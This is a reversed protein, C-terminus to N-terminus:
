NELSEGLSLKLQAAAVTVDYKSMIVEARARQANAQQMLLNSMNILNNKYMEQSQLLVEDALDNAKIKEKLIKKKTELNLLNNEVELKIGDKMYEYYYNTKQYEIKAKQKATSIKLGDFLKYELGVAMVYYSQDENMSLSEENYGYEVHAGVMPYNEAGEFDIKTKMTQTNLEMWNYDDRNKIAQNQLEKLELAKPSITIFEGVDDIQTNGTLFRLYALAQSYRNQAEEYKANVGVDYVQAQKVDIGTVLGENLLESAFEVFSATAEKAKRTADIFYKAAVAGNYAKLVDLGLAKEDYRYKAENAEVQLRSMDKASSLKFGTFLPLDYSLKTEYNRYAEPENLENPEHALLNSRTSNYTSSNMLGSMNDIFYDFGFDSFTAGRQAMKMGFVYGAHNTKSWNENFKLTGFDYGKAERLDQKAKDVSLKKAKLEKNNQLAMTLADQFNIEFSFLSIPLILFLLRKNIM